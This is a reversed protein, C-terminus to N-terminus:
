NIADIKFTIITITDSTDVKKIRLPNKFKVMSYELDLSAMFSLSAGDINSNVWEVMVEDMESESFACVLTDGNLSHCLINYKIDEGNEGNIIFKEM